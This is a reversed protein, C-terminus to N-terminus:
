KKAYKQYYFELLEWDDENDIDLSKYKPMHYGLTKTPLWTGSKKFAEVKNWVLSGCDCYVEPNTKEWFKYKFIKKLFGNTELKQACFFPLEYKSVSVIGNAKKKVLLNYSEIIDKHNRLPSTPWLMCFNDFFIENKEFKKLIYKVVDNLVSNHSCLNKPRKFDIKLGFNNCIEEIEDSDTSVHIKDFLRSKLAAEITYSIIPKNNLKRLNKKKIRKSGIRAPIIALNKLIRKM